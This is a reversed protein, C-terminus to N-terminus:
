KRAAEMVMRTLLYLRPEISDLEVYEEESSHYGFGLLGFGELTVPKGSLAAFAADTGGGNGSDDLGLKLGLEEYVERAQKALALSAETAVLPVRRREFGPEVVADAILQKKVRERFAREIVDLDSVRRVRVDASATALEPIVNRTMGGSALTWNFKIGRAEDSLDRTQLIQHAMEVLANRGLEPNVGAHASKGHITLSAAGIGSTAVAVEDHTNSTPECSFVFEHEAGIREILKRAGPSSIEEDANMVVTLVAYDRFGMNKLLTLTHLIIALGSKDDAVGPGYARRADLRFPRRALTGHQYVTDMHGLLMIRRTGSGTFRAIVVRGIERPTDFLTYTDQANPEYFEVKGGLAALREALLASIQDLGPKDRSGSEINVLQRLTEIVAPKEAQVSSYLPQQPAALASVAFALATLPM